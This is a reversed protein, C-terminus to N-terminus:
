RNAGKLNQKCVSIAGDFSAPVYQFRASAAPGLISKFRKEVVGSADPNFVWMRKLLNTGVTGLAFLYKFFADTEPLSYGIVFINEAESLEKAARSWVDALNRHHETKNWTPPVLVPEPIVEKDEYKFAGLHPIMKLFVTKADDPIYRWTFQSFHAKMTWPVVKDLEPCFAWNLSGHLKLLPVARAHVNEGLAYDVHIGSKFFAFDCALDYNFTIVSVTQKPTADNLLYKILEAFEGYPKPSQM